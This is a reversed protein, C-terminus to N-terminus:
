RRVQESTVGKEILTECYEYVQAVKEKDKETNRNPTGEAAIPVAGGRFEM